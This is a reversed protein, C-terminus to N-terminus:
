EAAADDGAPYGLLDVALDFLGGPLSRLLSTLLDPPPGARRPLAVTSGDSEHGLLLRVQQVTLRQLGSINPHEAGADVLAVTDLLRNWSEIKGSFAIALRDDVEAVVTGTFDCTDAERGLRARLRGLDLIRRSQGRLIEDVRLRTALGGETEIVTGVVVRGANGALDSFAPWGDIPPCVASVPGSGFLRTMVILVLVIVIPRRM